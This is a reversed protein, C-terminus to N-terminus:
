LLREWLQGRLPERRDWESCRVSPSLPDGLRPAHGPNLQKTKPLVLRPPNRYPTEPIPLCRGSPSKTSPLGSVFILRFRITSKANFVRKGDIEETPSNTAAPPSM